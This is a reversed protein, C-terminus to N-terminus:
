YSIKEHSRFQAMGKYLTKELEDFRGQTLGINLGILRDPHAREAKEWAKPANHTDKVAYTSRATPAALVAQAALACTLISRLM